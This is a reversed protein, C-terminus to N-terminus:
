DKLSVAYIAFEHEGNGVRDTEALEIDTGKSAYYDSLWTLDKNAYAVFYINDNLVIQEELNDVGYNSLKQAYIPSNNAWGGCIERNKLGRSKGGAIKQTYKVTSYVDLVYYNESHNDCYTQLEEWCVNVEERRNKENIVKKINTVSTVLFVIGLISAIVIVAIKCSKKSEEKKLAKVLMILLLGILLLLECIYFSDIVRVELRGRIIPFFWGITRAMFLAAIEILNEFRKYLLAMVICILYLAWAAITWPWDVKSLLRYKYESLLGSVSTKIYHIGLEKDNYDVITQLTKTDFSNDIAINYNRLLLSEEKTIGAGNYLEPYDEYLPYYKQFDYLETRVKNYKEFEKWGNVSYAIKHIGFSAIMLAIIIGALYIFKLLNEKSLPKYDNDRGNFWGTLGAIIIMPGILVVMQWRFMFGLIILIIAPINNILFEKKKLSGDATILLMGGSGSLMAAVFSYQVFLSPYLAMGTFALVLLASALLKGTLKPIIQWCRVLVFYASVMISAVLFVGFWSVIPCLKSLLALGAALPYLIYIAYGSPKGTFQGSIIEKLMIDDNMDYYLDTCLAIVIGTVIVIAAPIIINNLKSISISKKEM